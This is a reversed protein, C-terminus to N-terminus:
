EWSAANVETPDADLTGIFNREPAYPDQLLYTNIAITDPAVEFIFREGTRPSYILSDLVFDEGLREQKMLQLASDERAYMLVSDLTSVFRDHEREYRILTQRIFDMRERTEETLQEQRELLEAPETITRFLWYSLAVIAIALVIEIALRTGRSSAM